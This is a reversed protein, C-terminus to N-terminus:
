EKGKGRKAQSEEWKTLLNEVLGTFTQPTYKLRDMIRNLLNIEISINKNTKMNELRRVQTRM